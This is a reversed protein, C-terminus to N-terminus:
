VHFDVGVDLLSKIGVTITVLYVSGIDEESVARLIRPLPDGLQLVTRLNVLKGPHGVANATSM